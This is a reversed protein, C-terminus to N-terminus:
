EGSLWVLTVIIGALSIGTCIIVEAPYAEWLAKFKETLKKRQTKM